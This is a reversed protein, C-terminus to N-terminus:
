RGHDAIYQIYDLQAPGDYNREAFSTYGLYALYLCLGGVLIAITPVDFGVREFTLASILLFLAVLASAALVPNMRLAATLATFFVFCAWAGALVLTRRDARRLLALLKQLM